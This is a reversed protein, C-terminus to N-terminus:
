KGGGKCSEAIRIRWDVGELMTIKVDFRGACYRYIGDVETEAREAALELLVKISDRDAVFDDACGEIHLKFVGKDTHVVGYVDAVGHEVVVTEFVVDEPVFLGAM